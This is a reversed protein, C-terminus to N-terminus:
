DVKVAIRKPMVDATKPLTITLLGHKAVAEIRDADVPVPLTVRRRFNGYQREFRGWSVDQPMEESPKRGAIELTDGIVSIEIQAPDVGPVEVRAIIAEPAEYIDLVPVWTDSRTAAGAFDEGLLSGFLRNMREQLATLGDFPNSRVLGFM